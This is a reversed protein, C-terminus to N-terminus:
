AAEKLPNPRSSAALVIPPPVAASAIAAPHPRTPRFSQYATREVAFKPIGDNHLLM